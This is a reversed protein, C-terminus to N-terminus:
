LVGGAGCGGLFGPFYLTYKYSTVTTSGGGTNTATAYSICYNDPASLEKELVCATYIPVGAQNYTRCTPQRLTYGKDLLDSATYVVGSLNSGDNYTNVKYVCRGGSSTVTYEVSVGPVIPDSVCVYEGNGFAKPNSGNLCTYSTNATNASYTTKWSLNIGFYCFTLLLIICSVCSVLFTNKNKMQEM